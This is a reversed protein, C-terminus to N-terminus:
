KYINKKREISLTNHLSFENTLSSFSALFFTNMGKPTQPSFHKLNKKEHFSKNQPFTSQAVTVPLETFSKLTKMPFEQSHIHMKAATVSFTL